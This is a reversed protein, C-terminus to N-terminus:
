SASSPPNLSKFVSWSLFGSFLLLGISLVLSLSRVIKFGSGPDFGKPMASLPPYVVWGAHAAIYVGRLYLVIVFLMLSAALLMARPARRNSKLLTRILYIFFLVAVSLFALWQIPTVVLYTGYLQIDVKETSLLNGGSLWGIISVGTVVGIVWYVEKILESRFTM